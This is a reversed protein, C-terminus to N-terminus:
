ELTLGIERILRGYVTVDSRLLDAMDDSGADLPEFSVSAIWDQFQQTKVADRVVTELRSIIAPPTAARVFVAFWSSAEFGPYGSDAITPVDPLSRARHASTVAIIRIRGAAVHPAASPIDVMMCTLHGGMLDQMGPAGGRYPVHTIDVKAARMFQELALHVSNGAGTSGCSLGPNAQAYAVFEALTKAPFDPPVAIGFPIRALGAVPRFATAPEYPLRRFLFQNMAVTSPDFVAFTHGDAPAAILAQAAVVTAGGSRNEVVVTQGLPGSIAQALQRAIADTSGGAPYPVIAQVTRTPFNQAGVGVSLLVTAAAIGAGLSRFFRM